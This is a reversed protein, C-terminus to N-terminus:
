LIGMLMWVPVSLLLGLICIFTNLVIFKISDKYEFLQGATINYFNAYYTCQYPFFWTNSAILICFCVVWPNIGVRQSLPIMIASLIVITVNNPLVLRITCVIFALVIIFLFFNNGMMNGLFTIHGGVLEDIGLQNFIKVYSIIGALFFLFPWDIKSKFSGKDLGGMLMLLLMSAMAWWSPGLGHISSSSIGAIFIIIAGLVSMEKRSKSLKGLTHLQTKLVGRNTYPKQDGRFLLSASILNLVWIIIGSTLAAVFWYGWSFTEAVDAPLMGHVVLHIPKGTLFLGSILAFGTLTSMALRRSPLSNPEYGMSENMEVLIPSILSLRGNASPLVPTILIGIFSLALNQVLPYPPITSLLWLAIRFVLGSSVFAASIGFVGLTLFFSSSTFGSLIVESSAVHTALCAILLFISVLYMDILDFGWMIIACVGIIIFSTVPSASTFLSPFIALFFGWGIIKKLPMSEKKKGSGMNYVAEFNAIGDSHFSPGEDSLASNEQEESGDLLERLDPYQLLDKPSIKKLFHVYDFPAARSNEGKLFSSLINAASDFREIEFYCALAEEAFDHKVYLDAIKEINERSDHINWKQRVAYYERFIPTFFFMGQDDVNVAYNIECIRKIYSDADAINLLENCLSGNFKKMLFIRDLFATLDDESKGFLNKEFEAHISEKIESYKQNTVELRGVITGIFKTYLTPDEALMKDLGEKNLKILRAPTLAKVSATRRQGTLLAIEGVTDDKGVVRLVKKSEKQGYSIEMEGEQIIFMSDGRDGARIIEEGGAVNVNELFRVVKALTVRPLNEMFSIKKLYDISVAESNGVDRGGVSKLLFFCEIIIWIEIFFVILGAVFMQWDSSLYPKHINVQLTWGGIFIMFMVPIGTYLIGAKRRVLCITSVLVVLGALLQNLTKFLGWIKFVSESGACFLILFVPMFKALLISVKRGVPFRNKGVDVLAVVVHSQLRTAMDIAGILFSLVLVAMISVAIEEAIGLSHVLGATDQVFAGIRGAPGSLAGGNSLLDPLLAGGSLADGAQGGGGMGVGAVAVAFVPLTLVVGGVKGGSAGPFVGNGIKKQKFYNGSGVASCVTSLVGGAVVVFLFLQLSPATKLSYNFVPIFLNPRFILGGVAVMMMAIILQCTNIFDRTKLFTLGSYGSPLWVYFVLILAVWILGAARGSIGFMVTFDLPFLFGFVVSIYLIPLAIIGVWFINGGKKFILLDLFFALPLVTWIPIVARPYTIFVTGALLIFVTILFLLTIFLVLSFLTRIRGPAIGAAFDEIAIGQSGSGSTNLVIEHIVGFFIPGLLVWLVAPVWGWIVAIAPGAIVEIGFLVPFHRAFFLGKRFYIFDHYNESAKLSSDPTQKRRLLKRALSVGYIHYAIAYGAVILAGLVLLKVAVGCGYNILTGPGTPRL